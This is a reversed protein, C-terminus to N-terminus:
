WASKSVMDPLFRRYLWIELSVNLTSKKWPSKVSTKWTVWRKHIKKAQRIKM